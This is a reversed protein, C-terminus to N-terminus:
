RSTYGGDMTLAEGTVFSAGDSCLWCIADSVEEVSGLRNMAHLQEVQARMEPDDTIGGAELMPTEVFGPCVANVRIGAEAYELAATKTLGLVGHKAAVYAPATAFGVRGLISAVNVIAGGDDQETMRSLEAKTSRWVGSLNVDLVTHWSEETQEATALQRGGVGANNVGFDLRGYTEVAADVAAEVAALDTVDVERFTAEGGDSEIAEVVAEGDAADVDTVVVSAGAAALQEATARGIGSGAGTVLAVRGDFDYERSV